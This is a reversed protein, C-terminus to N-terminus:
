NWFHLSRRQIDLIDIELIAAHFDQLIDGHRDRLARTAKKHTIVSGTFTGKKLKQTASM